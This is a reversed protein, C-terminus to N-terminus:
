RLGAQRRVSLEINKTIHSPVTVKGPKDPHKFQKHSGNQRIQYWGAGEIEKILKRQGKKDHGRSIM